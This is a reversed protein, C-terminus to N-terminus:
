DGIVESWEDKMAQIGVFTNRDLKHLRSAEKWGAIAEKAIARMKRAQRYEYAWLVIFLLIVTTYILDSM